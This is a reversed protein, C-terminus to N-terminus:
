YPTGVLPYYAVRQEGAAGVQVSGAAASPLLPTYLFFSRPSVVTLEYRGDAAATSSRCAFRSLPLVVFGAHQASPLQARM